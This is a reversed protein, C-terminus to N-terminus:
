KSAQSADRVYKDLWDITEALVHLASERAAYGHSEEPLMVLRAVGGNGKIAQFLRESQMPFTGPNNDKQGHFMLLPTKIKDAHTFPSLRMYVDPAEWFTRRESQFGFPTLTRNYAGSRAIGAKFLDCHALLNATMFAGYSHGGVAVRARDAVGMDVAKDIAAQASSVIQKVFTDNMTEPDGVVPMSAADMIAYGSGGAMLLFLHSIGSMQVFRKDNGSVQGATSPDNFEMPYAWVLLPLRTGEVYGPPLYLTASLPVGDDRTYTVLQRRIGRLEPMPDTFATLPRMSGTELDRLFYNPPQTPSERSTIIANPSERSVDVVSEYSEEDCRWLRMPKLTALDFRDIFPRDGAPSAGSGRLHIHGARVPIVSRGRANTQTLPRGPDNYRDRVSRDFVVRPPFREDGPRLLTSRTWRRDRDFESVLAAGDYPAGAPDEFWDMGTYRHEVRHMEVAEGAFPAALRMLRDRHPVKNKPDGGDLAEAWYLTADATDQWQFGRPGTEVGQIPINERLPVRAVERVMRGARDWVEVVEPFEGWAVQYSFPKVTRSVLLYAGDPSPSVTSYIAPAGLPTLKGSDLDLTALQTTTLWEFVREDHECTLLDQYTRLPAKDGLADQVVPGAPASPAVPMTGRQEPVFRCLLTRGDPMWSIPSGGLPNLRPPTVARATASAVDLVWGEIGADRALTFAVRRGDHSWDLTILHTEAPLDVRRERGDMGRVSVGVFQRPRHPGNTSPNVRLGALRLMPQALDAIPPLGVRHLLLMQDRTPSLSVIPTPPADVLRVLNADPQRYTTQGFTSTGGFMMAAFGGGLVLMARVSRGLKTRM